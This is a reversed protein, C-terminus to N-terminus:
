AKENKFEQRNIARIGKIFNFVRAKELALKRNEPNKGSIIEESLALLLDKNDM